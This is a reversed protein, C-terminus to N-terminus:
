LGYWKLALSKLSFPTPLDDLVQRSLLNYYYSLVGGSGRLGFYFFPPPPHHTVLLCARSSIKHLQGNARLKVLLNKSSEGTLGLETGFQKRIKVCFVILM